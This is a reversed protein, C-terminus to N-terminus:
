RARSKKVKGFVTEEVSALARESFGFLMPVAILIVTRLAGCSISGPLSCSNILDGFTQGHISISILGWALFGCCVLSGVIGVAVRSLILRGFSDLQGSLTVEKPMKAMVSVCSGAGGAFLLAVPTLWAWSCRLLAMSCAIMVITSWFLIHTFKKMDDAHDSTYEDWSDTEEFVARLASRADTVNQAANKLAEDLLKHLNDTISKPVSWEQLLGLSLSAEVAVEHRPCIYARLQAQGETIDLLEGIRDYNSATRVAQEAESIRAMISALFQDRVAPDDYPDRPRDAMQQVSAREGEIFVLASARRRELKWRKHLGPIWWWWWKRM